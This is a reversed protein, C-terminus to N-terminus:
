KGARQALIHGSIPAPADGRLAKAYAFLTMAVTMSDTIEGDMVLDLLANFKVKRITLEESAEPAANGAELNWAFFCQAREDTVSNSTDFACLPAWSQATFGTEEALERKASELPPIDRPGGGEPLEWSYKDLPFRHQGVLPIMGDDDFPLIGIALNKFHVVGYEGDSGGPHTVTHDVIKIWPNEFATQQSQVTWPGIKRVSM